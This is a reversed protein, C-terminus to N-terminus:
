KKSEDIIYTIECARCKRKEQYVDAINFRGEPKLFIDLGRGLVIKWGNDAEISRDHINPNMECTLHIGLDFVSESIEELNETSEKLKDDPENWTIVKLNIEEDTAKIKSFMTCFELLLKMQHPYRIYPDTITINQAGKLYDAFLSEFSVGEQNDHLIVQGPKPVVKEKPKVAEGEVTKGLEEQETETVLNYKINELTEVQKPKQDEARETGCGCWIM